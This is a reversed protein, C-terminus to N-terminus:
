SRLGAGCVQGKEQDKLGDKSRHATHRDLKM